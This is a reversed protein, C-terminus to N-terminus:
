YGPPVTVGFVPSAQEDARTGLAPSFAIVGAVSAASAMDFVWTM